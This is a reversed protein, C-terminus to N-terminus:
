RRAELKLQHAYKEIAEAKHVVSVSLINRNTKDVDQKLEVAMAHLKETEVGLATLKEVVKTAPPQLLVAAAAKADPPPAAQDRPAASTQAILGASLLTLLAALGVVRRKNPWRSM